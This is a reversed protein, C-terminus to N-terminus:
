GSTKEKLRDYLGGTSRAALFTGAADYADEREAKLKPWATFLPFEQDVKEQLREKKWKTLKGKGYVGLKKAENPLLHIGLGMAVDIPSYMEFKIQKQAFMLATVLGTAMGMCRHARAGQGGGHPMELFAGVPKHASLFKKIREYLTWCAKVDEHLTSGSKDKESLLTDALVLEDYEPYMHFLVAGTKRFGVDLGVAKIM